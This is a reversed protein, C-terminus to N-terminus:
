TLSQGLVCYMACGQSSMLSKILAQATDTAPFAPNVLPIFTTMEDKWHPAQTHTCRTGGINSKARKARKPQATFNRSVFGDHNQFAAFLRADHRAHETM